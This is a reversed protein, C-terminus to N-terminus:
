AVAKTWVALSATIIAISMALTLLALSVSRYIKRPMNAFTILGLGCGVAAAPAMLLSVQWIEAFYAGRVASLVIGFSASMAIFAILTARASLLPMNSGLLSVIVPPGSMATSGNLCGSLFGIAALNPARTALVDREGRWARFAAVAVALGLLLRMIEAPVLTLVTLGVPTGIVAGLALWKLVRLDVHRWESPLTLLGIACELPFVAPVAAAPSLALTLIPMAALAFGFGSYGRVFGGFLGAILIIAMRHPDSFEFM